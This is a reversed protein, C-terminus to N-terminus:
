QSTLMNIHCVILLVSVSFRMLGFAFVGGGGLDEEGGPDLSGFM